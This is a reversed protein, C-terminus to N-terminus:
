SNRLANEIGHVEGRCGSNLCNSPVDERKATRWKQLHEIKTVAMTHNGLEIFPMEGGGKGSKLITFITIM